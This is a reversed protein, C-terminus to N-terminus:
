RHLLLLLLLTRAPVAPQLNYLWAASVGVAVRTRSKEVYAHPMCSCMSFADQIQPQM